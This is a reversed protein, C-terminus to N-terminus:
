SSTFIERKSKKAVWSIQIERELTLESRPLCFEFKTFGLYIPTHYNFLSVKIESTIKVKSGNGIFPTLDSWQDSVKFFINLTM